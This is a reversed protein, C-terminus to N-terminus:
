RSQSVKDLLSMESSNVTKKIDLIDRPPFVTAHGNKCGTQLCQSLSPDLAGNHTPTGILGLSVGIDVDQTSDHNEPSLVSTTSGNSERSCMKTQLTCLCVVVLVRAVGEQRTFVALALPTIISSCSGKLIYQRVFVSLVM